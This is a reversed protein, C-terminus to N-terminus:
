VFTLEIVSLVVLVLVQPNFINGCSKSAEMKLFEVIRKYSKAALAYKKQQFFKTGTEKFERACEM